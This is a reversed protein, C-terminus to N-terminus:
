EESLLRKMQLGYVNTPDVKLLEEVETLTEKMTGFSAYIGILTERVSINNPDLKIAQRLESIADQLKSWDTKEKPNFFNAQTLIDMAKKEHLHSQEVKNELQTTTVPQTTTQSSGATQFQDTNSKPSTKLFVRSLIIVLALIVLGIILGLIIKNNIKNM